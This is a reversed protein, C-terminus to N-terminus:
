GYNPRTPQNHTGSVEMRLPDASEVRDNKLPVCRKCRPHWKRTGHTYNENRHIKKNTQRQEKNLQWCQSLFSNVYPNTKLQFKLRSWIGCM